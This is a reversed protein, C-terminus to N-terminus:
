WCDWLNGNVRVTTIQNFDKPTVHSSINIAGYFCIKLWLASYVRREEVRICVGKDRFVMKRPRLIELYIEMIDCHRARKTHIKNCAAELHFISGYFYELEMMVPPRLLGWEYSYIDSSHSGIEVHSHDLLHCNDASCCIEAWPSFNAQSKILLGVAM